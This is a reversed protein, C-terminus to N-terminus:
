RRRIKRIIFFLILVVVIVLVIMGTNSKQILGLELAEEQSITRINLAVVESFENNFSDKYNINVPITGIHNNVILNIDITEFDDPEINGIYFSDQSLIEYGALTPVQASVFKLDGEGTNVFRIVLDSTQGLIILNGEEIGVNLVPNARVTISTLSVSTEGEAQITVPIKYIGPSADPLTQLTFTVTRRENEELEDLFKESSETPAFPLSELGLSIRIDKVDENGDNDLKISLSILGGPKIDQPSKTVSQVAVSSADILPSVLLLILLISLIKM